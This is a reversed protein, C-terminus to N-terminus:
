GGIIIVTVKSVIKELSEPRIELINEIVTPLQFRKRLIIRQYDHIHKEVVVHIIESRISIIKGFHNGVGAEGALSKECSNSLKQDRNVNRSIISARFLTLFKANYKIALSAVSSYPNSKTLSVLVSAYVCTYQGRNIHVKKHRTRSDPSVRPLASSAIWGGRGGSFDTERSGYALM